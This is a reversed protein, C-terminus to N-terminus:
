MAHLLKSDACTSRKVLTDTRKRHFTVCKQSVYMFVRNHLMSVDSSSTLLVLELMQEYCIGYVAKVIVAIFLLLAVM